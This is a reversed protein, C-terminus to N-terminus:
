ITKVITQTVFQTKQLTHSTPIEKTDITTSTDLLNKALQYNIKLCFKLSAMKVLFM